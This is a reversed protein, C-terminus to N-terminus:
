VAVVPQWETNGGGQETGSASPTQAELFGVHAISVNQSAHIVFLVEVIQCGNQVDAVTRNECSPPSIRAEEFKHPIGLGYSQHQLVVHM